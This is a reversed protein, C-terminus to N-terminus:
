LKRAKKTRKNECYADFRENFKEVVEKVMAHMGGIRLEGGFLKGQSMIIEKIKEESAGQNHLTKVAKIFKGETEKATEIADVNDTTDIQKAVIADIQTRIYNRALGSLDFENKIKEQTKSTLMEDEFLIGGKPIIRVSVNRKLEPINIAIHTSNTVIIQPSEGKQEVNEHGKM